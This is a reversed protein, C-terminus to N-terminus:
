ATWRLTIDETTDGDADTNSSGGFEASANAPLYARLRELCVESERDVVSVTISDGHDTMMDRYGARRVAVIVSDKLCDPVVWEAQAAAHQEAARAVEEPSHGWTPLTAMVMRRVLDTSVPTPHVRCPRCGDTWRWGGWQDKDEPEEIRAYTGDSFQPIEALPISVGYFRTQIREAPEGPLEDGGEVYVSQGDVQIVGTGGGVNSQAAELSAQWEERSAPRISAGTQYDCLTGYNM